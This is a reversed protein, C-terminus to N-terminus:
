RATRRSGIWGTHRSPGSGRRPPHGRVTGYGAHDPCTRRRRHHGAPGISALAFTGARSTSTAGGAPASLFPDLRTTLMRLSRGDHPARLREGALPARRPRWAPHGSPGDSGPHPPTAEAETCCCDREAGVDRLPLAGRFGEVAEFARGPLPERDYVPVLAPTHGIGTPPEPGVPYVADSGTPGDRQDGPLRPVVGQPTRLPGEGEPGKQAAVEVGVDLAPGAVGAGPAV